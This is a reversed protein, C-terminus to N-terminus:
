SIHLMLESKRFEIIERILNEPFEREHPFQVSGKGRKYSQLAKAFQVHGTPM